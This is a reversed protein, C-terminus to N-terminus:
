RVAGPTLGTEKACAACLNRQDLVTGNLDTLVVRLTATGEDCEECALLLDHARSKKASATQRPTKM